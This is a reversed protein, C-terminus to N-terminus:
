RGFGRTFERAMGPVPGLIERVEALGARLERDGVEVPLMSDQLESILADAEQVAEVADVLFGKVGHSPAGTIHTEFPSTQLAHREAFETYTRKARGMAQQVPRFVDEELKDGARDDLLEYAGGLAALAMAIEEVAPAIAELLGQRAESTTYSM